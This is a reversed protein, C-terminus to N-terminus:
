DSALSYCGHGYVYDVRLVLLDAREVHAVIHEAPAHLSIQDPFRHPALVRCPAAARVGGLGACEDAAAALLRPPLLASAARADALDPVRQPALAARDEAGLRAAVVIVQRLLD